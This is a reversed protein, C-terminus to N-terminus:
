RRTKSFWQATPVSYTFDCRINPCLLGVRSKSSSKLRTGCKPCCLENHRAIHSTLDAIALPFPIPGGCQCLTQCRESTLPFFHSSGCTPCLAKYRNPDDTGDSLKALAAALRTGNILTIGHAIGFEKANSNFDSTTVFIGFRVGSATMAGLFARLLPTGVMNDRAFRKCEVFSIRGRREVVIDKGGDGTSPTQRVVYGHSEFLSAVIGEFEYPSISMLFELRALRVWSLRRIEAQQLQSAQLNLAHRREGEQTTIQARIKAEEAQWHDKEEVSDAGRFRELEKRRREIEEQSKPPPGQYRLIRWFMFAVLAMFLVAAGTNEGKLTAINAVLSLLSAKM